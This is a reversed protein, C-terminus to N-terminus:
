ERRRKKEEEEKKSEKKSESKKRSKRGKGMTCGTKEYKLLSKLDKFKEPHPLILCVNRRSDSLLCFIGGSTKM